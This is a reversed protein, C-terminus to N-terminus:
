HVKDEHNNKKRWETAKQDIDLIFATKCSTYSKADLPFTNALDIKLQAYAQAADQHLRLYDRFILHREVEPHDKEFAHLHFLHVEGDLRQYYRRGPIGNEGKAQYGLGEFSSSMMDLEQLDDVVMLIDITPKAALGPVATSGIHHFSIQMTGLSAKLKEVEKWYEEVWKPNYPVVVVKRVV